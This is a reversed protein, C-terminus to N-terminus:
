RARFQSATYLLDHEAQFVPKPNVNLPLQDTNNASELSLSSVSLEEITELKQKNVREITATLKKYVMKRDSSASVSNSISGTMLGLCVAVIPVLMMLSITSTLPIALGALVVISILSLLFLWAMTNLLFLKYFYKESDFLLYDSLAEAIAKAMYEAEIRRKNVIKNKHKYAIFIDSISKLSQLASLLTVKCQESQCHIPLTTKQCDTEPLDDPEPWDISVKICAKVEKICTNVETIQIGPLSVFSPRLAFHKGGILAVRDEYYGLYKKYSRPLTIITSSM